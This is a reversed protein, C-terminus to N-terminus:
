ARWLSAEGRLKHELEPPPWNCTWKLGVRPSFLTHLTNGNEFKVVTLVNSQSRRQEHQLAGIVRTWCSHSFIESYHDLPHVSFAPPFIRMDMEVALRDRDQPWRQRAEDILKGLKEGHRVWHTSEILCILPLSQRIDRCVSTKLGVRLIKCNERHDAKWHSRQCEKSCYVNALCGSCRQLQPDEVTDTCNMATCRGSRSTHGPVGCHMM